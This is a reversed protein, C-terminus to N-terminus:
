QQDLLVRLHRERDCMATNQERLAPDRSRPASGIQESALGHAVEVQLERWRGAAVRTSIDVHVRQCNEFLENGEGGDAPIWIARQDVEHTCEGGPVPDFAFDDLWLASALSM